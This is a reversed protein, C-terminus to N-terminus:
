SYLRTLWRRQRGGGVGGRRCPTPLAQYRKTWIKYWLVPHIWRTNRDGALFHAITTYSQGTTWAHSEELGYDSTLSWKNKHLTHVSLRGWGATVTTHLAVSPAAPHKQSHRHWGLRMGPWQFHVRSRYLFSAGQSTNHTHTRIMRGLYNNYLHYEGSIGRETNITHTHVDSVLLHYKRERKKTCIWRNQQKM